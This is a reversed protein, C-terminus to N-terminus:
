PIDLLPYIRDDELGGNSLFFLGLKILRRFHGSLPPLFQFVIGEKNRSSGLAKGPSIVIPQKIEAIVIAISVRASNFSIDPMKDIRGSSTYTNM